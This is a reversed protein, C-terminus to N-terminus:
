NGRADLRVFLSRSVPRAAQGVILLRQLATMGLEVVQTAKLQWLM